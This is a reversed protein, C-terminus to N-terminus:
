NNLFGLENAIDEIKKFDENKALSLHSYILINLFFFVFILKKNKTKIMNKYFKKSKNSPIKWKGGTMSTHSVNKSDTTKYKELFECLIM